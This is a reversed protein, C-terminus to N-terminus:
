DVEVTDRRAAETDPGDSEVRNRGRHKARYLAADARGLLANVPEGARMTAVGFSCTKHRVVPFHYGAIAARLREAFTVAQAADTDACVVLFEEGGWRGVVDIDRSGERLLEAIAVLVQDGAQHGHTDNISKFHDVDLLVVSFVGNGRLGRSYETDLAQDLRLRNYLGTLRDTYSLTELQKNKEDLEATRDRVMTELFEARASALAQIKRLRWRHGAALAGLLGLALLARCWWTQHWAPEVTIRMSLEHPSWVGDRNSGRMRLLYGGPKMNSYSAVRRSADAEVWGKDYGELWFAYRNRPSASYDLAAVEVEFSRAEAPVTLGAGGSALLPAAPLARAGVRAASVVLPPQYGWKEAQGPHVITYGGSTGFLIDAQPTRTAAGVFYPQFVLGEARGYARARLTAIDVAAIGSITSVWVRGAGDPQMAVVSPNPLGDALGVRRFVPAGDAARGELVSIGGTNTGVWLRGRADIALSYVTSDALGSPNGPAGMIHEVAGTAPDLRNLGNQTGIWLAGGADAVVATVRNDSLGGAAAPGAPYARVTRARPDFRLVGGGTGLWLEGGRRLITGVRPHPEGQPMPVRAVKRGQASTRYLGLQTGIWAEGPEAEAMSLVLRKPLASDPRAPDPRLAAVRGGDPHILDIGQDGLAVWLRGAADNMFALVSVELLGEGDFVTEIARNRPNHTDVGRENAVWVLGSSDRWLAAVRDNALSTPMAVRHAIRRGRGTDDFEIVGGGYTAAWWRGPVVEALSLVMTSNADKVQDLALIRGEAAGAEVLGVGSRLTGFVVQGLTNTALALVADSWAGAAAGDVVAVPAIRGGAADRRALGANSGIWLDGNRDLALARIQNARGGGERPHRTVVGRATDIHDLGAPGGVWVGGKDDSAIASVSVGSLGGPGAPYRVFREHVKDYMAAGATSTGVWLRGRGDVHVTQIFDGPLSGPDDKDFFFNRMAYGDWRALGRQTGFWLFGDGDQALSMVVPHPLGRDPTLHEFMTPGLAEWRNQAAGAAGAPNGVGLLIAAAAALSRLAPSAAAPSRGSAAPRRRRRPQSFSWVPRM